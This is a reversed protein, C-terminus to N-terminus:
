GASHRWYNVRSELAAREIPVCGGQLAGSCFQELYAHSKRPVSALFSCWCGLWVNLLSVEISFFNMAAGLVSGLFSSHWYQCLVRNMAVDDCGVELHVAISCEVFRENFISTHEIDTFHNYPRASMSLMFSGRKLSFSKLVIGTDMCALM